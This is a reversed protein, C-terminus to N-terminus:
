TGTTSQPGIANHGITHGKYENNVQARHLHGTGTNADKVICLALDLTPPETVYGLRDSPSVIWTTTTPAIILIAFLEQYYTLETAEPSIPHEETPLISALAMSLRYPLRRLAM